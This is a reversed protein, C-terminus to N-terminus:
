SPPTYYAASSHSANCPSPCISSSRKVFLWRSSPHQCRPKIEMVVARNEGWDDNSTAWEVARRQASWMGLRWGPAPAPAMCALFGSLAMVGVNLKVNGAGIFYQAVQDTRLKRRGM